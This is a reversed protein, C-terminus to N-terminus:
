QWLATTAVSRQADALNADPRLADGYSSSALAAIGAALSPQRSVELARDRGIGHAAILRARVSAAVWSPKM